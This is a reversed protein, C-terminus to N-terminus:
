FEEKNKLMDVYKDYPPLMTSIRSDIENFKAEILSIFAKVEFAKLRKLFAILCTRPALSSSDVVRENISLVVPM